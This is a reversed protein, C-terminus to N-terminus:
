LKHHNWTIEYRIETTLSLISKDAFSTTNTELSLLKCILCCPISEFSGQTSRSDWTFSDCSIRYNSSPSVIHFINSCSNIAELRVTYSSFKVRWFVWGDLRDKTHSEIIQIINTQGASMIRTKHHQSNMDEVFRFIVDKKFLFTNLEVVSPQSFFEFNIWFFDSKYLVNPSTSSVHSGGNLIKDMSKFKSVHDEHLVLIIIFSFIFFQWYFNYIDSNPKLSYWPKNISRCGTISFNEM